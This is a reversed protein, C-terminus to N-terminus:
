VESDMVEQTFVMGPIGDITGYGDDLTDWKPKYKYSMEGLMASHPTDAGTKVLQEYARAKNLMLQKSYRKGTPLLELKRDVTRWTRWYPLLDESAM